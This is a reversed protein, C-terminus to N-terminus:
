AYDLSDILGYAHWLSVIMLTICTMFDYSYKPRFHPYPAESITSFRCRLVFSLVNIHVHVLLANANSCKSYQLRMM